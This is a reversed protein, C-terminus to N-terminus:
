KDISIEGVLSKHADKFENNEDYTLIVAFIEHKGSTLKLTDIEKHVQQGDMTKDILLSYKGNFGDYLEGDCFLLTVVKGGVHQDSTYYWKNDKGLLIYDRVAGNYKCIEYLEKDYVNKTTDYFYDKDFYDKDVTNTKEVTSTIKKHYFAAMAEDPVHNYEELLPVLIIAWEQEEGKELNNPSFSILKRAEKANELTINHVLKEESDDITFPVLQDDVVMMSMAKVTDYKNSVPDIYMAIGLEIKNGDYSIYDDLFYSYKIEGTAEDRTIKYINLFTGIGRNVDINSDQSETESESTTEKDNIVNDKENDCGCLLSMTIIIGLMIKKM